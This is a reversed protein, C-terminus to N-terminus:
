TACCTRGNPSCPSPTRGDAFLEGALLAQHFRLLDGTTSVPRQQVRADDAARPAPGQHVGACPPDTPRHRRAARCGPTSSGWRRSSGNPWCPRSPSAPPANSSRSSCSSAPTPTAPASATPALDQPPFHPTHEERVMRVMDDFTWRPGTGAALERFLSPGGTKPKDWYDPLGSTHSLLHRITIAAHPRRGQARAAATTVEAPLHDVLRDDLDLEGRESAQLVLTAIFRKTVSAIFFPTDPGATHRRRRGGPPAAGGSPATEPPSRSCRM